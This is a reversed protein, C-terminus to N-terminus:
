EKVEYKECINKFEILEHLSIYHIVVEVIHVSAIAILGMVSKADAIQNQYVVDIHSELKNIKMWFENLTELDRLDVLYKKSIM